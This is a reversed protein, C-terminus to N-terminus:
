GLHRSILEALTLVAGVLTTGATVRGALRRLLMDVAAPDPTPGALEREICALDNGAAAQDDVASRDAGILRRVEDFQEAIVTAIVPPAHQTQRVTGGSVGIATPGHFTSGTITFGDGGTPSM